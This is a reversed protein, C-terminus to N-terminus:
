NLNLFYFPPLQFCFHKVILLVSAHQNLFSFNFAYKFSIVNRALFFQTRKMNCIDIINLWINYHITLLNKEWFDKLYRQFVFCCNILLTISILAPMWTQEMKFMHTPMLTDIGAAQSTISHSQTSILHRSSSCLVRQKCNCLNLEMSRFMFSNVGVFFNPWFCDKLIIEQSKCRSISFFHLSKAQSLIIM